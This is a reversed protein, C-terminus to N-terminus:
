PTDFKSMFHAILAGAAAAGAYLILRADLPVRPCSAILSGTMLGVVLAYMEGPFRKLLKRILWLLTVAAALAGLAFWVLADWQFATFAAMMPKYWGLRFLIVSTSLGPLIAGVTLILGAAAAEVPLLVAADAAGPAAKVALLTLSAGLALAGVLVCRRGKGPQCAARAQRVIAPMSGAILGIFLFILVTEYRELVQNLLLAVGYMGAAAGLGIPLLFLGNERPKRFFTALADLLREYLGFAVALVSGSLGPLIGGVGLMVGAVFRRIVDRAKGTKGSKDM